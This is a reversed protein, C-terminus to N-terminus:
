AEPEEPTEPEEPEVIEPVDFDEVESEAEDERDLERNLAEDAEEEERPARQPSVPQEAGETDRAETVPEEEVALVVGEVDSVDDLVQLTVEVDDEQAFAPAGGLMATVALLVHVRSM